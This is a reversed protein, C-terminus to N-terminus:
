GHGDITCWSRVWGTIDDETTTIPFGAVKLQHVSSVVERLRTCTNHEM